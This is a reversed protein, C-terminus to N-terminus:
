AWNTRRQRSIACTRSRVANRTSVGAALGSVRALGPIAGRLTGEASFANLWLEYITIRNLWDPVSRAERSAFSLNQAVSSWALALILAIKLM